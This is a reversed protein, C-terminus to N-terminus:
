AFQISKTIIRFPKSVHTSERVSIDAWLGNSVEDAKAQIQSLSFHFLSFLVEEPSIVRDQCDSKNAVLIVLPAPKPAFKHIDEVWKLAHEYTKRRTVDFM